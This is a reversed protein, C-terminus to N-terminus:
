KIQPEHVSYRRQGNDSPMTKRWFPLALFRCRSHLRVSYLCFSPKPLCAYLECLFLEQCSIYKWTYTLELYLFYKAYMDAPSIGSLKSGTQLWEDLKITGQPKDDDSLKLRTPDGYRPCHSNWQDKQRKLTEDESKPDYDEGFLYTWGLKAPCDRCKVDRLTYRCAGCAVCLWGPTRKGLLRTIGRALRTDTTDPGSVM